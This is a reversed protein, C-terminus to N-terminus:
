GNKEDERLVVRASSKCTNVEPCFNCLLYGPHACDTNPAPVLDPTSCVCEPGEVFNDCNRCYMM